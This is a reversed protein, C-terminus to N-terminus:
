RFVYKNMKSLFPPSLSLSLSLSVNINSLFMSQNGRTHVRVLSQGQLGPIHGSWSDVQLWKIYLIINWGVSGDPWLRGRRKSKGM